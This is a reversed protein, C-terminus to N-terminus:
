YNSPQRHSLPVHNNIWKKLQATHKKIEDQIHCDIANKAQYLLGSKDHDNGYYGSCSDIIDGDKEVLYSYVENTLFQDYTKVDGILWENVELKRKSTLRKWNHGMNKLKELDTYIWGVQGSDWGCSFGGTSMTIGSHDYLYLPLVVMKSGQEKIFEKFEDPDNYNHEDGLNYRSHFCIMKSFNEWERPDSADTDQVIEIDYGKYNITDTM